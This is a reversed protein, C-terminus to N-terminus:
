LIEKIPFVRVNNKKRKEAFQKKMIKWHKRGTFSLGGVRQRYLYFARNLFAGRGLEELAYGMWKDVASPLKPKFIMGRDRLHTRFTRWHSFCHKGKQGAELLSRLGPSRSFGKRLKKLHTDCLYFQTWIFDVEEHKEYSRMLKALSKPHSLADDADIVGCIAGTAEELARSYAGGCKLRKPNRILKIRKDKRAHKQILAVSKDRSCDDVIIMEWDKYTQEIVSKICQGIYKGCNYNATLITAKTM